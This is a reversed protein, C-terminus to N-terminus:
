IQKEWKKRFKEANNKIWEFVCANSDFDESQRMRNKKYNEIEVIQQDMFDIFEERCMTGGWM